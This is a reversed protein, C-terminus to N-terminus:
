PALDRGLKDPLAHQELHFHELLDIELEALGAYLARWRASADHPPQYGQTLSRLAAIQERVYQHEGNLVTLVEVAGPGRACLLPFVVKEEHELHPLLAAALRDLTAPIAALRDPDSNGHVHLV